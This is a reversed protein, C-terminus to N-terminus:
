ANRVIEALHATATMVASAFAANDPEVPLRTVAGRRGKPPLPLPGRLPFTLHTSGRVPVDACGPVDRVSYVPYM